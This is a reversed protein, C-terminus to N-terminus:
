IVIDYPLFFILDECFHTKIKVLSSKKNKSRDRFFLNRIRM